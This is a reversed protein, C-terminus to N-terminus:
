RSIELSGIVQPKYILIGLCDRSCVLDLPRDRGAEGGRVALTAALTSRPAIQRHIPARRDTSARLLQRPLPLCAGTSSPERWNLRLRKCFYAPMATDASFLAHEAM